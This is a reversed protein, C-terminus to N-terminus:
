KLWAKIESDPATFINLYTPSSNNIAQIVTSSPVTTVIKNGKTVIGVDRLMKFLVRRLKKRTAETLKNLEEHWEAKEDFFIDFDEYSLESMLNLYKERIVDIMFDKIFDYKKCIALWLIHKKDKHVGKVLIKLEENSLLKLRAYIERYFRQGTATTRAQFSNNETIYDKVTSWEGLKLYQEACIVSEQFFVAGVSFSTSYKVSTM